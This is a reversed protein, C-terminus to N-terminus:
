ILIYYLSRGEGVPQIIKLEVMKTLEKHVAQASINFLEQLERNTVKGHVNIYEVIQMQRATLSIQKRSGRKGKDGLKIIAEKGEQVSSAVGTTFYELWQALNGNSAQVTKLAAYYAKRDRDYYDDL